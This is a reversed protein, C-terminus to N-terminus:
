YSPSSANHHLYHFSVCTCSQTKCLRTPFHQSPLSRKSSTSVVSIFLSLAPSKILKLPYFHAHHHSKHHPKTHIKRYKVKTRSNNDNWVGTCPPQPEQPAHPSHERLQPPPTCYEKRSHSLGTGLFPPLYQSPFRTCYLDQLMSSQGSLLPLKEGNKVALTPTNHLFLVSLPSRM